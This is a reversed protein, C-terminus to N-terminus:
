GKKEGFFLNYIFILISSLAYYVILNIIFIIILSLINASMAEIAGLDTATRAGTILGYVKFGIFLGATLPGQTWGGFAFAAILFLLIILILHAFTHHKVKTM